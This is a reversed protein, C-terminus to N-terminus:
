FIYSRSCSVVYTMCLIYLYHLNMLLYIINHIYTSEYLILKSNEYIIEGIIYKSLYLNGMKEDFYLCVLIIM